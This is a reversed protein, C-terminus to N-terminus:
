GLDVNSLKLSRAVSSIADTAVTLKKSFFVFVPFNFLPDSSRYLERVIIYVAYRECIIM